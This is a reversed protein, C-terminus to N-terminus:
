LFFGTPYAIFVVVHVWQDFFLVIYSVDGYPIQVLHPTNCGSNHVNRFKLQTMTICWKSIDIKFHYHFILLVVMSYLSFKEHQSIKGFIVSPLHTLNESLWIKAIELVRWSSMYYCKNNAQDIKPLKMSTAFEFNLGVRFIGLIRYLLDM